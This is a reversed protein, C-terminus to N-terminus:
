MKGMDSIGLKWLEEIRSAHVALLNLQEGLLFRRQISIEVVGLKPQGAGKVISTYDQGYTVLVPSGKLSFELVPVFIRYGGERLFDMAAYTKRPAQFDLFNEIVVFPKANALTRRAGMLVELEMGEADIKMFGPPEFELLDVPKVPIKHGGGSATLRSLGTNFHDAEAVTMDCATRGVGLQCATVRDVVAAQKLTSTLDAFTRPNPEFAYISGSFDPLAAALLSFYGWNAGIDFFAKKDRCLTAILLATELEYGYRYRPEYLAHYQLNRGNFKVNHNQGARQYTFRGEAPLFGLGVPLRQWRRIFPWRGMFQSARINAPLHELVFTKQIHEFHNMNPNIAPVLNAAM